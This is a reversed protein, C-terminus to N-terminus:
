AKSAGELPGFRLVAVRRTQETPAARSDLCVGPAWLCGVMDCIIPLRTRAAKTLKAESLLDSLKRTGKFGLPQMSDGPQMTRFHLPGKVQGLDVETELAARIVKEGQYEKEFAALTWGFEESTIEGPLELSSRFPATPTLLRAHIILADWEIAVDGGETTVSGKEENSIGNLLLETQDSTLQSGLVGAVLRM